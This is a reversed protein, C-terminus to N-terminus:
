EYNVENISKVIWIISVDEELPNYIYFGTKKPIYISGGKKIFISDDGFRYELKGDLVYICEDTNHVMNEHSIKGKSPIKMYLVEIDPANVDRWSFPTLVECINVLNRYKIKPREDKRIVIVDESEDELFLISPPINLTECLKRLVSLSPEVKNNELHSIYGTTVGIREALDSLTLNKSKRSDKIVDGLM